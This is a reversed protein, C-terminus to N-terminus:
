NKLGLKDCLDNTLKDLLVQKMIQNKTKAVVYGIKAIEIKLENRTM